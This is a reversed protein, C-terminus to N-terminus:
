IQENISELLSTIGKVLEITKWESPTIEYSFAYPFKKNKEFEREQKRTMKKKITSMTIIKNYDYPWKNKELDYYQSNSDKEIWIESNEGFPDKTLLLCYFRGGGLNIKIDEIKLKVREVKLENTSESTWLHYSIEFEFEKGIINLEDKVKHNLESLALDSEDFDLNIKGDSSVTSDSKNLSEESKDDLWDSIEKIKEKYYNFDYQTIKESKKSNLDIVEFDDGDKKFILNNFKKSYHSISLYKDKIDVMPLGFKLDKDKDSDLFLNM